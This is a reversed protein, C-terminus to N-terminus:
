VRIKNWLWVPWQTKYKIWSYVNSILSSDLIYYSICYGNSLLNNVFLAACLSHGLRRIKKKTHSYIKFFINIKNNVNVINVFM